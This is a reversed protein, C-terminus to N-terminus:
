RLGQRKTQNLRLLKVRRLTEQPNDTEELIRQGLELDRKGIQTRKSNLLQSIRVPEEEFKERRFDLISDLPDKKVGSM